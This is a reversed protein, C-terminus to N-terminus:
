GGFSLDLPGEVSCSVKDLNSSISELWDGLSIAIGLCDLLCDDLLWEAHNPKDMRDGNRSLHSIILLLSGM